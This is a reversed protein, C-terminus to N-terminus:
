AAESARPPPLLPEFRAGCPERVAPEPHVLARSAPVFSDVALPASLDPKKLVAEAPIPCSSPQAPAPRAARLAVPATGGALLRAVDAKLRDQHSFHRSGKAWVMLDYTVAQPTNACFWAALLLWFPWGPPQKNRPSPRM